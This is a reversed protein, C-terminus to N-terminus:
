RQGLRAGAMGGAVAGAEVAVRARGQDQEVDFRGGEERADHIGGWSHCCTAQM